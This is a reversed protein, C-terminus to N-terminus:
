LCYTLSFLVEVICSLIKSNFKVAYRQQLFLLLMYSLNCMHSRISCEANIQNPQSSVSWGGGSTLSTFSWKWVHDNWESQEM